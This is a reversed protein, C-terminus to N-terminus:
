SPNRSLWHLADELGSVNLGLRVARLIARLREQPPRSVAQALEAEVLSPSRFQFRAERFRSTWFSELYPLLLWEYTQSGPPYWAFLTQMTALQTGFSEDVTGHMSSALYGLVRLPMYTDGEYTISLDYLDRARRIDSSARELIEAVGSWLRSNHAHEGVERCVGALSQAAAYARERDEIALAGIHMFAPVVAFILACTEIHTQQEPSLDAVAADLDFGEGLPDQEQPPRSRFVQLAQCARVGADVADEYRDSLLLSPILDRAITAQLYSMRTGSVAESARTLWKEASERNGVSWAYQALAWMIAPENGPRYYAPRDPHTLLFLGRQPAAFDEGDRTHAPPHGTAALVSLYGTTHAFIVFSDKWQADDEKATLLKEAAESWAV